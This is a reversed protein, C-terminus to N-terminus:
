LLVLSVVVYEKRNALGQKCATYKTFPWVGMRILLIQLGDERIVEEGGGLNIRLFAFWGFVM